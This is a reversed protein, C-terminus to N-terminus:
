SSAQPLASAPLTATQAYRLIDEYQLVYVMEIWFQFLQSVILPHKNISSRWVFCLEEVTVVDYKYLVSVLETSKKYIEIHENQM